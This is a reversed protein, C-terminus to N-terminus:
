ITAFEFSGEPLKPKGTKQTETIKEEYSRDSFHQPQIVPQTPHAPVCETASTNHLEHFARAGLSDSKQPNNGKEQLYTLQPGRKPNPHGPVSKAPLLISALCIYAYYALYSAVAFANPKSFYTEGLWIWLQEM